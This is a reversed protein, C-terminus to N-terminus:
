SEGGGMDDFVDSVKIHRCDKIGQPEFVSMMTVEHGAESLAKLAAEGVAYHSKGGFPFVALIKYASATSLVLLCAVLLIKQM